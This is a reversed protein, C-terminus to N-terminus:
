QYEYIGLKIRQFRALLPVGGHKTRTINVLDLEVSM